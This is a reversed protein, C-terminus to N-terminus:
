RDLEARCRLMRTALEQRDKMCSEGEYHKSYMREVHLITEVRDHEHRRDNETLHGIGVGAVFVGIALGQVWGRAHRRRGEPSLQHRAIENAARLRAIRAEAAAITDRLETM